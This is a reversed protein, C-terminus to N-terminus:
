SHFDDSDGVGRLLFNGISLPLSFNMSSTSPFAGFLLSRVTPKEKGVISWCVPENQYLIDLCLVICLIGWYSEQGPELQNNGTEKISTLM